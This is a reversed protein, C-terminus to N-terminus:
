FRYGPRNKKDPILPLMASTNPYILNALLAKELTHLAEGIERKGYWSKGFGEFIIRRGAELFILKIVHRIYNTQSDNKAYKEVDDLYAQVLSNYIGGLDTLNKTTAYENVIEPMGGIVACWHFLGLLKEFAFDPFPIKNFQEIAATEDTAKLFEHFTVPKLVLCEVRGVPFSINRDFLSELLSGAAIVHIGPEEEYFYRLINLAEPVEQIEDIFLLTTKDKNYAINKDLFLTQILINLSTFDDFPKRDTALELILYLYQDFSKSFPKVLATKGVQRAGRLVM